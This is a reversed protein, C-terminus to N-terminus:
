VTDGMEMCADAASKENVAGNERRISVYLFVILARGEFERCPISNGAGKM